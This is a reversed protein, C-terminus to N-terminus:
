PTPKEHKVDYTHDEPVDKLSKCNVLTDKIWITSGNHLNRIHGRRLHPVPSAHHGQGVNADARRYFRTDIHTVTPLPLRGNKERKQQIKAAPVVENKPIGKTNLILSLVSVGDALSSAQRRMAVMDEPDALSDVINGSWVSGDGRSVFCGAAELVYSYKFQNKPDLMAHIKADSRYFDAILLWEKEGEKIKSALTAVRYMDNDIEVNYWYIVASFPISLHGSQVLLAARAGESRFRDAEVNGFDFHQAHQITAAMTRWYENKSGTRTSAMNNLALAWQRSAIRADNTRLVLPGEVQGAIKNIEELPIPRAGTMAANIQTSLTSRDGRPITGKGSTM